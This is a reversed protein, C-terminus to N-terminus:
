RAPFVRGMTGKATAKGGEQASRGYRRSSVTRSFHIMLGLVDQETEFTLGFANRM